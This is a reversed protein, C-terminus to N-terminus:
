CKRAVALRSKKGDMSPRPEELGGAGGIVSGIGAGKGGGFIGGLLAGAGAGIVTRTITKRGRGSSEIAGKFVRHYLDSRLDGIRVAVASLRIGCTHVGTQLYFSNAAPAYRGRGLSRFNTRERCLLGSAPSDRKELQPGGTPSSHEQPGARNRRGLAQGSSNRVTVSCAERTHGEQPRLILFSHAGDIRQATGSLIVGELM